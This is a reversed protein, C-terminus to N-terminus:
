FRLGVGTMVNNAVYGGAYDTYRYEAKLYAKPTINVETGAAFLIGGLDRKDNSVTDIERVQLNAYGVKGYLLAHDGIPTGIRGALTVERRGRLSGTATEQTVDSLNLGAEVGAILNPNVAFDYGVAAGYGLDSEKSRGTGGVNELDFRLQDLGITIEARPGTFADAAEQALAPTGTLMAAALAIASIIKKM